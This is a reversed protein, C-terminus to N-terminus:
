EINLARKLSEINNDWWYPIIFLTIGFELCLKQKETDRTKYLEVPAFLSPIDEYHQKGHYEFAIKRQVLFVDFQISVGVNRSIESHFYDEVIEEGPFLSKVQLFLWRQSSKINLRNELSISYSKFLKMLEYKSYKRLLGQGGYQKIQKTSVRNFDIENKLNLKEKLEEIFKDINEQKDWFGIPKQSQFFLSSGSPCGMCKIEYMSYLNLLNKGGFKKIHNSNVLNWDEITNLNLNEKLEELFQKINNTNEWYKNSKKVTFKSKGEPCGFCKIEYISYLHLLKSGGYKRIDKQSIQNWDKPTQLNLNDKLKQIFDNINEEKNWYGKSKKNHVKKFKFKGDPFGLCKIEYLSYKSFLRNGGNEQIQKKTISDWDNFTNLNLKEKLQLLFQKINEDNEWFGAPKNPKQHLLKGDPNGLNKLESITYLQLISGGGCLRIDKQSIKNWDEYTQLNFKEQIYALFNKVNVDNNWFGKPKKNLKTTFCRITFM